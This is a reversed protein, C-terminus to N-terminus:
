HPVFTLLYKVPLSKNLHLFEYLDDITEIKTPNTLFKAAIGMDLESDLFPLKLGDENVLIYATERLAQLSEVNIAKLQEEFGEFDSPKIKM